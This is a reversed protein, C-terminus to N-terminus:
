EFVPYVIAMPAKKSLCDGCAREDDHPMITRTQAPQRLAAGCLAKGEFSLGIPKQYTNPEIARTLHIRSM